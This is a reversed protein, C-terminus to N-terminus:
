PVSFPCCERCLLSLLIATFRREASLCGEAIHVSVMDRFARVLKAGVVGAVFINSNTYVNHLISDHSRGIM